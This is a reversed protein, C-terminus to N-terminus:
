DSIACDHPVRPEIKSVSTWGFYKKLWSCVSFINLVKFWSGVLCASSVVCVSDGWCDWGCPPASVNRHYYICLLNSRWSNTFYRGRKSRVVVFLRLHNHVHVDGGSIRFSLVSM